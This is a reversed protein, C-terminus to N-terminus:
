IPLEINFVSGNNKTTEIQLKGRLMTVRNKINKLGLGSFSKIKSKDFGIGNDEISIYFTTKNQSCDVIIETCFSHKIANNVLEQVIRFISIQHSESITKEIKTSHYFIKIESNSNLYCLDRLADDLGLSILVEPVLNHAVNRLENISNNLLKLTNQMENDKHIPNNNNIMLLRMKLSTLMSGIGDHLEKAVRKREQEEGSIAAQMIELEKQNQIALLHQQHNKEQEAALRSKNKAQLWFLFIMFTLLVSLGGFFLYYLKNNAAILKAKHNLIELETIKKENEIKNFKTELSLIENKIKVKDLSDLVTTYQTYFDYAKKYQGLQYLTHSHSKLYKAKDQLPLKNDGLLQSTIIQAEKYRHLHSLVESERYKIHKLTHFNQTAICNQEGKKYSELADLPAKKKFYYQGEIYYYLGSLNSTMYRSLISYAKDLYNKCIQSQNLGLANEANLIYSEVKSELYFPSASETSELYDISKKLYIAAKERENSNRLLEGVFGLLIGLNTKNDSKEAMPIASDILVRMAEAEKNKVQYLVAKNQLLISQFEYSEKFKYKKLKKLTSDIAKFYTDNDKNKLSSLSRYYISIDTLYPYDQANQIGINLYEDFKDWNNQIRFLDSIKLSYYSKISDSKTSNILGIISDTFKKDDGLNNFRQGYIKYSICIFILIFVLKKM